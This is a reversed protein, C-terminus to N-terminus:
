PTGRAFATLAAIGAIGLAASLVYGFGNAVRRTGPAIRPWWRAVFRPLGVGLHWAASLVGLANWLFWGVGQVQEHMITYLDKKGSLLDPSLRTGWTHFIVYNLLYIGTWRQSWTVWGIADSNGEERLESAIMIGITMHVLLPLGIGLAEIWVVGPLRRVTAVVDRYAGPGALAVSNLTIHEVLFVALPIVGTLSHIRRLWEPTREPIRM